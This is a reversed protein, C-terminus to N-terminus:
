QAPSIGSRVLALLGDVDQVTLTAGPHKLLGTPDIGSVPERFTLCLGAEGNTAFTVGRDAFSLRAPGATKPFAFPGSRQASSVNSLPTRLTWPGFRVRLEPDPADVVEVYTTRPTVGFPLAAVRYAPAFEFAFRRGM